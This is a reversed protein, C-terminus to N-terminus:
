LPWAWCPARRLELTCFFGSSASMVQVHGQHGEQDQMPVTGVGVWGVWIWSGEFVRSGAKGEYVVKVTNGWSRPGMTSQGRPQQAEPRGLAPLQHAFM